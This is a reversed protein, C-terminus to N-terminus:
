LNRLSLNAKSALFIWGASALASLQSAAMAAMLASSQFHQLHLHPRIGRAQLGLMEDGV